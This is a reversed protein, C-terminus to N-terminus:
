TRKRMRCVLVRCHSSYSKNRKNSYNNNSSNNSNTTPTALLLPRRQCQLCGDLSTCHLTFQTHMIFVQQKNKNISPVIIIILMSKWVIMNHSQVIGHLMTRATTTCCKINTFAALFMHFYAFAFRLAHDQAANCHIVIALMTNCQM